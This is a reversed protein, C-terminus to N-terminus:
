AMTEGGDLAIVQGTIYGAGPGLLFVILPAVEDARGLRGLPIVAARRAAAAAVEHAPMAGRWLPTDIPGPAVANCRIGAPGKERALSKTFGIVAGKAAAYHAAQAQGRLAHLSSMNVIAGARAAIMDPLVARCVNFTGTVHVAFMAAWDADTIDQVEATRYVGAINVAADVPGLARRTEAVAANVAAPDGVDLAIAIATGGAAEIASASAHGADGDRDLVAVAAGAAALLQATERGMGSGGGTVVGVRGIMSKQVVPGEEADIRPM